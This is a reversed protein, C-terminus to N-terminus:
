VERCVGKGLNEGPVYSIDTLERGSRTIKRVPAVNEVLCSDCWRKQFGWYARRTLKDHCGQCGSGTLIEAYEPESIGPPPDPMDHGFQRLRAVKWSNENRRLIENFYDITVAKLLFESPCYELISQWIECPIKNQVPRNTRLKTRVRLQKQRPFQKDARPRGGKRRETRAPTSSRSTSNSSSANAPTSTGSTLNSSISSRSTSNSLAADALFQLSINSQPSTCLASSDNLKQQKRPAQDEITSLRKRKAQSSSAPSSSAPSSSAPSLSAQSPPTTTLDSDHKPAQQGFIDEEIM